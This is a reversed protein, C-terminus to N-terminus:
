ALLSEGPKLAKVRKRDGGMAKLFPEADPLLGPFTAYHCPIVTKFKFLKKCSYAAQDPGMTYRDGICLIGIAPEYLDHIIKM